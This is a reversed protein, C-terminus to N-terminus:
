TLEGPHRPARGTRPSRLPEPRDDTATVTFEVPQPTGEPSLVTIDGPCNLTPPTFDYHAIIQRTAVRGQVPGRALQTIQDKLIVEGPIGLLDKLRCLAHINIGTVATGGLYGIYAPVLPLVCPSVFSIFGAVFAPVVGIDM